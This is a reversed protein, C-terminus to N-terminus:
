LLIQIFIPGTKWYIQFDEDVLALAIDCVGTGEAPALGATETDLVLIRM